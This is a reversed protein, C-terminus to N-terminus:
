RVKVMRVTKQGQKTQVRCYYSGVPLQHTEISIRHNGAPFLRNSVVRLEHGIVDYISIKVWENGTTLELSTYDRFPNPYINLKLSEGLANTTDTVSCDRLIPLHQFDEFLLNRVDDEPVSFWDMLVSGYVSRFDYQMPVGEQNDVDPSIEPNDGIVGANVCSGFVVLPAATGHDTGFSANSRIRRGFESYTMGIVREELGQLKLDDQFACIADGLTKLLAAHAGSTPDGDVTQDAHTDFGGLSVVYIKTGLGGSILRAVTRLKVALGNDDAYKSSLNVGSMNAAEIVENYANTQEITNILFALRNGYCGEALENNTPTALASLNEPDVVALSFNSSIGQCTETVVSGVTMALPDPCNENPYGEPFGPFQTDLYRGLWGTDLFDDADSATHWIDLSRFHSRNQNPYGVSQIINAKGDNFVEELGTLAPNLAVTDTINLLSNEPIMINSRVAAFGDQQDRPIVTNLGDNGGNLQILVLVRDDDGNLLNLFSKDSIASVPVGGLLLPASLLSSKQLFSRRKM